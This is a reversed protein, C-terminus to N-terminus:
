RNQQNPRCHRSICENCFSHGCALVKIPKKLREFCIPCEIDKSHTGEM